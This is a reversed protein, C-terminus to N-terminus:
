TAGVSASKLPLGFVSFTRPTGCSVGWLLSALSMGISAWCAIPEICDSMDALRRDGVLADSGGYWYACVSAHSFCFSICTLTKSSLDFQSQTFAFGCILNTYYKYKTTLLHTWTSLHYMSQRWFIERVKWSCDSFERLSNSFSNFIHRVALWKQFSHKQAVAIWCIATVSTCCTNLM